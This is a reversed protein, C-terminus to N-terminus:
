CDVFRGNSFISGSMCSHIRSASRCKDKQGSEVNLDVDKRTPQTRAAIRATALCYSGHKVIKLSPTQLSLPMQLVSQWYLAMTDRITARKRGVKEM